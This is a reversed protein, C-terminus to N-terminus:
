GPNIQPSIWLGINRPFGAVRGSVSVCALLERTNKEAQRRVFCQQLHSAYEWRLLGTKATNDRVWLDM